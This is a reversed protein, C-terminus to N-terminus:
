IRVLLEGGHGDQEARFRTELRVPFLLIPTGGDLRAVEEAMTPPLFIELRRHLEARLRKETGRAQVLAGLAQKYGRQAAQSREHDPGFARVAAEMRERAVDLASVRRAREEQARELARRAEGPGSSDIHPNGM